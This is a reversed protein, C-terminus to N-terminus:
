FRHGANVIRPSVFYEPLVDNACEPTKENKGHCVSGHWVSALNKAFTCFVGLDISEFPVWSNSIQV